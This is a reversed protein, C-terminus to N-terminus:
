DLKCDLFAKNSREIDKELYCDEGVAETDGNKKSDGGDHFKGNCFRNKKEFTKIFKLANSEIGGVNFIHYGLLSRDKAKRVRRSAKKDVMIGFMADEEGKELEANQKIMRWSVLCLIKFVMIGFIAVEEDKTVGEVKKKERLRTKIDELIGFVKVEVEMIGFMSYEDAMKGNNKSDGGDQLRNNYFKYKEFTM